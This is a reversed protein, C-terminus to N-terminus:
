KSQLPKGKTSIRRSARLIKLEPADESLFKIFQPPQFSSSVRRLKQLEVSPSLKRIQRFLIACGLTNDRFYDLFEDKTIGTKTGFRRWISAPSDKVVQEVTGILEVTGHPLKTYIWVRTGPSLHAARRRLEVTKRGNRLNYAHCHNVSIIVDSPRHM